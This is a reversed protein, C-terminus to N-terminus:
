KKKILLKVFLAWKRNIELKKPNKQKAQLRQVLTDAKFSVDMNLGFAAGKQIYLKTVFNAWKQEIVYQEVIKRTLINWKGIVLMRQLKVQKAQIKNDRALLVHAMKNWRGYIEMKEVKENHEELKEIQDKLKINKISALNLENEEVM